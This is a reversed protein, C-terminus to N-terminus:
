EAYKSSFYQRISKVFDLVNGAFESSSYIGFIKLSCSKQM